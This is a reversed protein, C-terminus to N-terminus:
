ALDSISEAVSYYVLKGGLANFLALAVLYPKRGQPHPYPVSPYPIASRNRAFKEYIHSKVESALKPSKPYCFLLSVNRISANKQNQIALSCRFAVYAQM